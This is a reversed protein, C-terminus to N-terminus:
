LSAEAEGEGTVRLAEAVVAAAATTVGACVVGISFAFAAAGFAVFTLRGERGGERGGGKGGERGGEKRPLM